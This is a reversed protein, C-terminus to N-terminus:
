RMFTCWIAAELKAGPQLVALKEDRNERTVTQAGALVDERQSEQGM